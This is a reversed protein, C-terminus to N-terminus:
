LTLSDAAEEVESILTDLESDDDPVDKIPAPKAGEELQKEIPEMNDKTEDDLDEEDEDDSKDPKEELNTQYETASDLAGQLEDMWEDCAAVKEELDDSSGPFYEEKNNISQQYESSEEEAASVASELASIIDEINRSNCAAHIEEQASYLNKLHESSTLDVKTPRCNLCRRQASRMFEQFMHYKTGKPIAEGCKSCTYEKRATHVSTRTM